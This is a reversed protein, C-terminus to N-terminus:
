IGSFNAGRWIPTSQTHSRLIKSENTRIHEWHLHHLDSFTLLHRLNFRGWLFDGTCEHLLLHRSLLSKSIWAIVRRHTQKNHKWTCFHILIAIQPKALTAVPPGSNKHARMYMPVEAKCPDTQLLVISTVPMQLRLPFIKVSTWYPSLLNRWLWSTARAWIVSSWPFCLMQIDLSQKFNLWDEACNDAQQQEAGVNDPYKWEDEGHCGKAGEASWMRKWQLHYLRSLPSIGWVKLSKYYKCRVSLEEMQELEEWVRIHGVLTKTHCRLGEMNRM